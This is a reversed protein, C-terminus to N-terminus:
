QPLYELPIQNAETESSWYINIIYWRNGDNLLQTSNIGRAIPTESNEERLTEYTSFVHTLSGFKETKRFIEREFFNSQKFYADANNIYDDVSMYFADDDGDSTKRTSILQANEKFLYKFLEWNRSKTKEGSIVDYLNAIISDLQSVKSYYKDDLNQGTSSLNLAFTMVIALSLAKM